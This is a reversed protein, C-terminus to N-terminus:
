RMSHDPSILELNLPPCKRERFEKVSSGTSINEFKIQATTVDYSAQKYVKAEYFDMSLLATVANGSDTTAQYLYFKNGDDSWWGDYLVWTGDPFKKSIIEGKQLDYAKVKLQGAEFSKRDFVLLWKADPSVIYKAIDKEILREDSGDPRISYLEFGRGLLIREEYRSNTVKNGTVSNFSCGCLSLLLVACLAKIGHRKLRSRSANRASIMMNLIEKQEVPRGTVRRLNTGVRTWQDRQSGM